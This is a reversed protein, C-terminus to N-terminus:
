AAGEYFSKDVSKRVSARDAYHIMRGVVVGVLVSFPVWLMGIWFLIAVISM